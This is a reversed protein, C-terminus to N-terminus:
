FAGLAIRALAEDKEKSKPIFDLARLYRPKETQPIIKGLIIDALHKSGHTGRNRWIIDRAAPTNLKSTSELWADFFNNEQQDAALGLAELYWRDKGDHQSALKAWLLPADASKNHRLAILCERRVLASKDSALQKILPIVELKHQRAIRLAMGRINDDMDKLALEITAKQNGHIQSLLWLARARFRPNADKALELLAPKVDNQRKHLETWAIYRM